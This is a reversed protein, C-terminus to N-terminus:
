ENFYPVQVLHDQLKKLARHKKVRCAEESIQLRFAIDKLKMKCFYVGYLIKKEEESLFNLLNKVQEEQQTTELQVSQIVGREKPPQEEIYVTRATYGDRQYEKLKYEAIRILYSKLNRSNKFLLYEKKLNECFVYLTEAYIKDFADKSVEGKQVLWGKLLPKLRHDLHKWAPEDHQIIRTVFSRFGDNLLESAMEVMILKLSGYAYITHNLTHYHDKFHLYVMDYFADETKLKKELVIWSAELYEERCWNKLLLSFTTRLIEWAQIDGCDLKQKFEDFNDM